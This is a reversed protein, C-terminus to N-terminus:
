LNRTRKNRRLIHAIARYTQVPTRARPPLAAQQEILQAAERWQAPSVTLHSSRAKHWEAFCVQLIEAPPISRRLLNVFGAASDRGGIVPGAESEAAAAPPVLSVSNKWVFLLAVASLSFVMGHLGYRRLLTSVGPQEVVGLHAEDFWIHQGGGVLWALLAAAREQQVAENSFPYADAVLVVSGQGLRRECLVPAAGHAYVTKWANTELGFYLATHVVLTPPLDRPPALDSQLQAVVAVADTEPAGAAPGVLARFRPAFDWAPGLNVLQREAEDEHGRPPRPPTSKPAPEPQVEPAIRREAQDRSKELEQEERRSSWSQRPQPHFALVLRGGSTVFDQLRAFEARPLWTLGDPRLGLVLLARERGEREQWQAEYYREATVGALRNLSEYVASTGLPDTRLSSYAPYLDGRAYRLEFLRGVGLLLAALLLLLVVLLAPQKLM